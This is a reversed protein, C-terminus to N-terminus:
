RGCAEVLALKEAYVRPVPASPMESPAQVPQGHEYWDAARYRSLRHVLIDVLSSWGELSWLRDAEQVAGKGHEALRSLAQELGRCIFVVRTSGTTHLTCFTLQAHCFCGMNRTGPLHQASSVSAHLHLSVESEADMDLPNRKLHAHRMEDYLKANIWWSEPGPTTESGSSCLEYGPGINTTTFKHAKDYALVYCLHIKTKESAAASWFRGEIGTVKGVQKKPQQIRPFTNLFQLM